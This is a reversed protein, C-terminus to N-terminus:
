SISRGARAWRPRFPSTSYPNRTSRRTLPARKTEAAANLAYAGSFSTQRPPVLAEESLSLLQRAPVPPSSRVPLSLMLAISGRRLMRGTAGWMDFRASWRKFGIVTYLCLILALLATAKAAISVPLLAILAFVALGLLTDLLANVRELLWREMANSRLAAIESPAAARSAPIM